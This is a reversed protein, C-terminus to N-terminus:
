NAKRGNAVDQLLEIEAEVEAPFLLSLSVETPEPMQAVRDVKAVSSNWAMFTLGEEMLGRWDAPISTDLDRLAVVAELPVDMTSLFAMESTASAVSMVLPAGSLLTAVWQATLEGVLPVCLRHQWEAVQIVIALYKRGSGMTVVNLHTATIEDRVELAQQWMGEPVEACLVWGAVRGRLDLRDGVATALETPAMLRSATIRGTAFGFAMASLLFEREPVQTSNM